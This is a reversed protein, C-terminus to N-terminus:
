SPVSSCIPRLNAGFVYFVEFKLLWRLTRAATRTAMGLVHLEGVGVIMQGVCLISISGRFASETKKSRMESYCDLIKAFLGIVAHDILLGGFSTGWDM